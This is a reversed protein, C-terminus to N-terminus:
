KNSKKEEEEEKRKALGLVMFEYMEKNCQCMDESPKWHGDKDKYVRWYPPVTMPVWKGCIACRAM